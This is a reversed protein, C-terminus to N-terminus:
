MHIKIDVKIKIIIDEEKGRPQQVLIGKNVMTVIM